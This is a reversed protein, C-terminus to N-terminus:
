LAPALSACVFVRVCVCMCVYSSHKGGDRRLVENGDCFFLGACLVPCVRGVRLWLSLPPPPRLSAM